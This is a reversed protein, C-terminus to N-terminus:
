NHRGPDVPEGEPQSWSPRNILLDGSSRHKDNATTRRENTTRGKGYVVKAGSGDRSSRGSEVQEEM